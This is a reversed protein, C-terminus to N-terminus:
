KKLIKNKYNKVFWEITKKLGDDIYTKEHFKLKSIKKFDITRKKTANIKKDIWIIKKEYKYIKAIKKVVQDITLYKKSGLNVVEEKSNMIRLIGQAADNAFLFSRKADKPKWVKMFKNFKQALYFKHILSPIVHGNIINFNDYLGYLNNMIVFKYKINFQEKMAKLQILMTRKSWGYYLEAKDPMFKFYDKERLKSYNSSYGASSGVCIIKKIKHKTSIKFLNSNMLLNENILSFKNIQNGGIGYVVNALHIIIEPKNKTFFNDIKKFNLLNNKNSNSEYIINNKNKKLISILARGLMGTSGTIFYKKKM